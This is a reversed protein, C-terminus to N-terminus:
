VFGGRMPRAGLGTLDDPVAPGFPDFRAGPPVSGPPLHGPVQPYNQGRFPDFIMGGGGIGGIRSPGVRLPDDPFPNLDSRGYNNPSTYSQSHVQDITAGTQLSKSSAIDSERTELETQKTDEKLLADFETDIKESLDQLDIFM